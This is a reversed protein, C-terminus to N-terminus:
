VEIRRLPTLARKVGELTHEQALALFLRQQQDELIQVPNIRLCLGEKIAQDLAQRRGAEQQQDVITRLVLVAPAALGVVCLQAQVRQRGDTSVFQQLDQEPVIGAQLREGVQKNRAGLPIREEQFLAHAGQDLRSDQDTLRPGIAWPLDQRGDLDRGGHLRHQRRTDVPQRGLLLAQELGGR